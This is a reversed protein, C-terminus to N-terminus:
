ISYRHHTTQKSADYFRCAHKTASADSANRTSKSVHSHQTRPQKTTATKKHGSRCFICDLGAVGCFFSRDHGCSACRRAPTEGRQPAACFIMGNAFFIGARATYKAAAWATGTIGAAPWRPMNTAAQQDSLAALCAAAADLDAVSAAMDALDASATAFHKDGNACQRQEARSGRQLFRERRFYIQQAWCQM